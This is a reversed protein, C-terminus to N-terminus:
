VYVRWTRFATVGDAGSAGKNKYVQRYARYLNKDNLVKELLEMSTREKRIEVSIVSRKLCKRFIRKRSKRKNM